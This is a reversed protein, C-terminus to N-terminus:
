RAADPGTRTLPQWAFDLGVWTGPEGRFHDSNVINRDALDGVRVRRLEDSWPTRVLQAIARGDPAFLATVTTSRLFSSLKRAREGPRIRREWLGGSRRFLLRTGDPSVDQVLSLRGGALLVRVRRGDRRMTLVDAFRGAGEGEGRNFVIGGRFFRPAFEDLGSTTLRALRAGTPRVAYIDDASGGGTGPASGVFVIARGDPAFSAERDDSGGSTLSRSPGGRAAVTYLDRPAGEARRREFVLFRGNPSFVPRSDVEPGSTLPREESGDARVARLDGGRVFAIRTADPSFEPEADVPDDTLRVMRGDRRAYLGGEDVTPGEPGAFRVKSFVVTGLDPNAAASGAPLVLTALALLSILARRPM